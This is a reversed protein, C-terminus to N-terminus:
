AAAGLDWILSPNAYQNVPCSLIKISSTPQVNTFALDVSTTEICVLAPITKQLHDTKFKKQYFNPFRLFIKCKTMIMECSYVCTYVTM